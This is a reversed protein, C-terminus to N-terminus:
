RLHKAEVRELPLGEVRAINAHDTHIVSPIRGLHKVMDRRSCLLGFFEQEFSHWRQQCSSLHASFYALVKLKGGERVCQGTVGGIAYGSTDAAMLAPM